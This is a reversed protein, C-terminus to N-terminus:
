YKKKAPRFKGEGRVYIVDNAIWPYERKDIILTRPLLEVEHGFFNFTITGPLFTPDQFVVEGFGCNTRATDYRIARILNTESWRQEPFIIRLNTLKLKEQTIIISPQANTDTSFTVNWPGASIRRNEIWHFIVFYAVLSITFTIALKKLLGESEMHALSNPVSAFSDLRTASGM